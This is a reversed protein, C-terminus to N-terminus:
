ETMYDEKIRESDSMGRLTFLMKTSIMFGHRMSWRCFDYAERSCEGRGGSLSM